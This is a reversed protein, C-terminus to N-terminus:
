VFILHYYHSGQVELQTNVVMGQTSHNESTLTLFSQGTPHPFTLVRPDEYILLPSLSLSEVQIMPHDHPSKGTSCSKAQTQWVGSGM